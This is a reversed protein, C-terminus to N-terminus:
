FGVHPGVGVYVSCCEEVSMWDRRREFYGRRDRMRRREVGGHISYGLQYAKRRDNGTRRDLFNHRREVM